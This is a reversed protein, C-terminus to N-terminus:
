RVGPRFSKLTGSIPDVQLTFFNTQEAPKSEDTLGLLTVYWRDGTAAGNAATSPPLDTSGDPQYRFSNIWYNRGVRKEPTGVPLEPCTADTRAEVHPRLNEQLMTSYKDPQFIVGRPLRVMDRAPLAAGNELVEFLQIARYKGTTPDDFKEGPTEPDGFRYFRVEIPRNRTLALQRGFILTDNVQQAAQSMQSSKIITMTAPVAFAIVVAILGVVVLLEIITFGSRPSRNM